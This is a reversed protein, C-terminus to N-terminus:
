LEPPRQSRQGAPVHGYDVRQLGTQRCLGGCSNDHTDPTQGHNQGEREAVEGGRPSQGAPGEAVHGPGAHRVVGEHSFVLSM